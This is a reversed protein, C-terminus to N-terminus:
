APTEENEMDDEAPPSIETPPIVLEVSAGARLSRFVTKGELQDLLLRVSLLGAGSGAQKSTAVMGGANLQDLQEDTFGPGSDEVVVHLQELEDINWAIALRGKSEMAEVSNKCLNIIAARLGQPDTVFTADDLNDPPVVSVSPPVWTLLETTVARFFALLNLEEPQTARDMGLLEQVSKLIGLAGDLHESGALMHRLRDTRSSASVANKTAAVTAVLENKADHLQTALAGCVEAPLPRGNKYTSLAVRAAGETGCCFHLALLVEGKTPAAVILEVPADSKLFAFVSSQGLFEVMNAIQVADVAHLHLQVVLMGSVEISAHDEPTRVPACRAIARLLRGIAELTVGHRQWCSLEPDTSIPEVVPLRHMAFQAIVDVLLEHVPTWRRPMALLRHISALDGVAAFHTSALIEPYAEPEVAELYRIADSCVQGMGQLPDSNRRDVDGATGYFALGHEDLVHRGLLTEASKLWALYEGFADLRLWHLGLAGLDKTHMLVRQPTLGEYRGSLVDLSHCLFVRAFDLLGGSLDAASRAPGIGCAADFVDILEQSLRKEITAPDRAQIEPLEGEILQKQRFRLRLKVHVHNRGLRNIEESEFAMALGFIQCREILLSKQNRLSNIDRKLSTTVWRDLFLAVEPTSSPLLQDIRIMRDREAEFYAGFGASVVELRGRAALRPDHGSRIDDSWRLIDSLQRILSSPNATSVYEQLSPRGDPPPSQVYLYAIRSRALLRFAAAGVLILVQRRDVLLPIVGVDQNAESLTALRFLDLSEPSLAYAHNVAAAASENAVLRKDIAPWRLDRTPLGAAPLLAGSLHTHIYLESAKREAQQRTAGCASSENGDPTRLTAVYEVQDQGRLLSKRQWPSIGFRLMCYSSLYRAHDEAQLWDEDQVEAVAWDILAFTAPFGNSEYVAGILRMTLDEHAANTAVDVAFELRPMTPLLDAQLMRPMQRSLQYRLRVALAAALNATPCGSARAYYDACYLNMLDLGVVRLAQRMVAVDEYALAIGVFRPEDLKEGVLNQLRLVFEQYASPSCRVEAPLRLRPTTAYSASDLTVVSPPLRRPM